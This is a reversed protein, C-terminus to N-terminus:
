ECFNSSRRQAMDVHFHNRHANNAEPGLVTGFIRCASRHAERLFTTRGGGGDASGRVVPVALEADKKPKPGGLRNPVGITGTIGIGAGLGPIQVNVRPIGSPQAPEDGGSRHSLTPGSVGGQSPQTAAVGTPATQGPGASAPKGAAVAAADAAAKAAREAEAKRAAAQAAAVQAQIDRATPGWNALVDATDGKGFMFARIDLANAKGHESLRGHARGYAMRCSYSSMTDIRILESKMHRRALPQLDKTIWAHLAAVMDCTMVVTPSFTVQPSTGISILEVPAAAGCDGGERIPTAPMVVVALDKLLATCRARGAATEEASWTSPLPPQAAAKPLVKPFDPEKARRSASAGTAAGSVPPESKEPAQSPKFQVAPQSQAGAPLPAAGSLVASVVLSVPIRRM